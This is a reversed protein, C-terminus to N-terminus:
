EAREATLEVEIDVTFGVTSEDGYSEGMGFDRRDVPTTGSMRAVGDEIELTFPLAVPLEAGRLALTGRAVHTAEGGETPEIEAEFRAQPFQSAALFEAGTAEATVQGLALSGTDVTVAVEGTGAEPDYDIAASWTAFSGRVGQGMQLVAISLTGDRVVWNPVPGAADAVAPAEVGASVQPEAPRLLLGAGLAAAWVAAAALLPLAGGHGGQPVGEPEAGRTMRALTADRDIVEHKIAGAVHLALSGGLVILAARHLTSFTQSLAVDVPVGPLGQGLPWLIPAFGVASAHHIWGTLPVAVLAGYLLWHVTAAALSELRREPHLPAPRPQSLAWAIRALAVLFVTVGVTKHWSFLAAKVGLQADTAYPWEYAVLGLVAATPILAAISWHFAREVWGYTTASNGAATRARTATADLM